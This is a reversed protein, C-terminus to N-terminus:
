PTTIDLTPPPCIGAGRDAVPTVAVFREEWQAPAIPEFAALAAEIETVDLGAATATHYTGRDFWFVTTAAPDLDVTGVWADVGLFHASKVDHAVLAAAYAAGNAPSQSLNISTATGPVALVLEYMAAPEGIALVTWGSPLTIGLSTDRPIMTDLMEVIEDRWATADGRGGGDAVRLSWCEHSARYTPIQGDFVGVVAVEGFTRSGDAPMPANAPDANRLLSLQVIAGGATRITASTSHAPGVVLANAPVTDVGAPPALVLSELSSEARAGEAGEWAAADPVLAPLLELLSTQDSDPTLSGGNPEVWLLSVATQDDWQTGISCVDHLCGDGEGDSWVTRGGVEWSRRGLERVTAFFDGSERLILWLETTSTASAYSAIGSSGNREIRALEYGAPPETLVLPTFSSSAEEAVPDVMPDDRGREPVEVISTVGPTSRPAQVPPPADARPTAVLGIVLLVVAAAVGGLVLTRHRSRPGDLRALDGRTQLELPEVSTEDSAVADGPREGTEIFALLLERQVREWARSRPMPALLERLARDMGRDDLVDDTRM